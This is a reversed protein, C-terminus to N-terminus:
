YVEIHTRWSTLVSNAISRLKVYKYAVNNGHSVYNSAEGATVSPSFM